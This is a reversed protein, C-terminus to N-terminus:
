SRAADVLAVAPPLVKEHAHELCVDQVPEGPTQTNPSAKTGQLASLYLPGSREKLPTVRVLFDWRQRATAGRNTSVVAHLTRWSNTTTLSVNNQLSKKAYQEVLTKKRNINRIRLAESKHKVAPSYNGPTRTQEPERTRANTVPDFRCSIGTQSALHSSKKKGKNWASLSPALLAAAPRTKATRVRRETAVWM